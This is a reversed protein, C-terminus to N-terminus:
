RYPAILITAIGVNFFMAKNQQIFPITGVLFISDTKLINATKIIKKMYFSSIYFKDVPNPFNISIPYRLKLSEGDPIELYERYEKIAGELLKNLKKISYEVPKIATKRDFFSDITDLMQQNNKPNIGKYVNKAPLPLSILASADTAAIYNENQHTGSLNPRLEWEKKNSLFYLSLLKDYVKTNITIPPQPTVKSKPPAPKPTPKTKPPKPKPTVKAKPPQTIVESKPPTPKPAPKSKPPKPKPAVKSNPQDLIEVSKVYYNKSFDADRYGKM